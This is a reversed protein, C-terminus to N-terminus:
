HFPFKSLAEIARLIRGGKSVEKTSHFREALEAKEM